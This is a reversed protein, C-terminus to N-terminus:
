WTNGRVMMRWLPIPTGNRLYFAVTTCVGGPALSRIAFSLGKASGSADVAIPYADARVKAPEFFLRARRDVRCSRLAVASAVAYLGVSKAQGGVVLVPAEPMAALPAAVTRYGDPLNDSASALSVPDVGDPVSLLMADAHPVYLLDSVAGGWAGTAAGFGYAAVPSRRETTCHATLGRTCPSCDGCSIQFPVVVCDGVRVSRVEEGIQVVEAVCEHGYPFPGEFPRKGFTEFVLPDLLSLTRGVSLSQRESRKVTELQLSTM